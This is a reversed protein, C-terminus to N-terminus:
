SSHLPERNRNGPASRATIAVTGGGALFRGAIAKGTGKTGGTVLIRKGAFEDAYVAKKNAAIM